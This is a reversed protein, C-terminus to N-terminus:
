FGVRDYRRVPLSSAPRYGHACQDATVGLSGRRSLLSGEVGDAVGDSICRRLYKCCDVGGGTKAVVGGVYGKGEGGASRRANRSM